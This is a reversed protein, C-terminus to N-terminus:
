TSNFPIQIKFQKLKPNHIVISPSLRIPIQIFNIIIINIQNKDTKEWDKNREVGFDM